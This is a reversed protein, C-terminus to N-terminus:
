SIWNGRWDGSYLLVLSLRIYFYAAPARYESSYFTSALVRNALKALEDQLGWGLLIKTLNPPV